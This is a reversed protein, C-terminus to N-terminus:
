QVQQVATANTHLAEQVHQRVHTPFAHLSKDRIYAVGGRQLTGSELLGDGGTYSLFNFSSNVILVDEQLIVKEHTNLHVLWLKKEVQRNRLETLAEEDSNDLHNPNRPMGYRREIGVAFQDTHLFQLPLGPDFRRCEAQSVPRLNFVFLM